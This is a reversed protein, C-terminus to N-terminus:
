LSCACMNLVQQKEVAATTIRVSGVKNLNHYPQDSRGLCDGWSMAEPVAAIRCHHWRVEVRRGIEKYPCRSTTLRDGGQCTPTDKVSDEETAPVRLPHVRIEAMTSTHTPTPHGLWALSRLWHPLAAAAGRLRRTVNTPYFQMQYKPLIWIRHHKPLTATLGRTPERPVWHGLRPVSTQALHGTAPWKALRYM